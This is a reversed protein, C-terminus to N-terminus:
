SAAAHRLAAALEGIVEGSHRDVDDWTAPVIRWGAGALAALKRRDRHFALKGRHPEYGDCELGVKLDPWAFDIRFRRRGVTVWHQRVPRPLDSNLLMRWAKVELLSELAAAGEGRQELLATLRGSGARGTGGLEALRWRLFSDRFLGLDFGKEMLAELVEGETVAALDILTRAATAVPIGGLERRDVDPLVLTRHVVIVDSRPAKRRPVTVHAPEGRADTLGWLGAASWHSIVAGSGAWLAVAM